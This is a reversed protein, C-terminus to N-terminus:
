APYAHDAHGASPRVAGRGPLRSPAAEARHQPQGRGAQVREGRCWRARRPRGARAPAPALRRRDAVPRAPGGLAEASPGGAREHDAPVRERTEVDLQEDQLLEVFGSLSFIPTRLEHSANAIFERRAHDVKALQEQMENFARTLRGLEDDSEVPLPAIRRGAAVSRAARELRRIRAALRRAVIWGGLLAVLLAAASAVLLRDRVLHVAQHADAFNRTFTAVWVPKGRYYLLQAVEGNPGVRASLPDADRGSGVARRALALSPSMSRDQSSDSVVYFRPASGASQQLGLLTVRASSRDAINRVIADVQPGTVDQGIVASLRGTSQAAVRRLDGLKQNVIQTELQPLFVFTVVALALATVLLFLLALRNRLSRLRPVRENM